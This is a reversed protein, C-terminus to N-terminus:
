CFSFLKLVCNRGLRGNLISKIKNIHLVRLFTGTELCTLLWMVCPRFTNGSLAIFMKLDLIQDLKCM